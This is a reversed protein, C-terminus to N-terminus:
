GAAPEDAEPHRARWAALRAEYHERETEYADLVCVSCGGGCCDSPLPKEPPLPRPDNSTSVGVPDPRPEATEVRHHCLARTAVRTAPPSPKGIPRGRRPYDIVTRRDRQLPPTVVAGTAPSLGM